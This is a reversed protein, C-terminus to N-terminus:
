PTAKGYAKILINMDLLDINGDSNFDLSCDGLHNICQSTRIAKAMISVDYGDIINNDPYVLNSIVKSADLNVFRVQHNINPNMQHQDIFVTINSTLNFSSARSQLFQSYSGDSNKQIVGILKGQSAQIIVSSTTPLNLPEGNVARPFIIIKSTSTGDSYIVPNDITILTRTSDASGVISYTIQNSLLSLVNNIKYTIIANTSFNSSRISLQFSGDNNSFFTVDSNGIPKLELQNNSGPVLTFRLFEGVNISATLSNTPFDKGIPSLDPFLPTVTVTTVSLGDASLISENLKIRLLNAEPEVFRVNDIIDISEFGNGKITGSITAVGEGFCPNGSPHCPSITMTLIAGGAYSPHLGADGPAAHIGLSNSIIGRDTVLFILQSLDLDIPFDNLFRPNVEVFASQKSNALLYSKNISIRTKNGSSGRIQLTQKDNLERNLLNVKFTVDQTNSSSEVIATYIIENAADKEFVIPRIIIDNNLSNPNVIGIAVQSVGIDIPIRSSDSFNAEILFKISPTTPILSDKSHVFNPNIRFKSQGLSVSEFKVNKDIIMEINDLLIKPIVDVPSSNTMTCQYLNNGLSVIPTFSVTNSTGSSSLFTLNPDLDLIDGFDSGNSFKPKIKFTAPANLGAFVPKNFQDIGDNQFKIENSVLKIDTLTPSPREYFIRKSVFNVLVGDLLLTIDSTVSNTTGTLNPAFISLKYTHSGDNQYVPTAEKQDIAANFSGSTIKLKLRSSIDAQIMQNDITKPTLIVITSTTGNGYLYTSQSTITSRTLNLNNTNINSVFNIVESIPTTGNYIINQATNQGNGLEFQSEALGNYFELPFSIAKNNFFIKDGASADDLFSFDNEYSITGGDYAIPFPQAFVKYTGPKLGNIQFEGNFNVGTSTFSSITSVAINQSQDWAVIHAGSIFDGNILGSLMKGKLIGKYPNTANPYTFALISKEDEKIESQEDHYKPFLASKKILAGGIDQESIPSHDFGLLHGLEHTLVSRLLAQNLNPNSSVGVGGKLFQFNKKNLIIDADVITRNTLNVTLYTVAMVGFNQNVSDSFYIFNQNDPLGNNTTPLNNIPIVRFPTSPQAGIPSPSNSSVTFTFNIASGLSNQWQDLSYQLESLVDQNTLTNSSSPNIMLQISTNNWRVPGFSGSNDLVIYPIGSFLNITFLFLFLFKLYM